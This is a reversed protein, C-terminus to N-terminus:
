TPKYPIIADSLDIGDKMKGLIAEIQKAAKEADARNAFPGSYLRTFTKSKIAVGKQYFPHGTPALKQAIKAATDVSRYSGVLITFREETQDKVVPVPINQAQQQPAYYTPGTYIMVPRPPMLITPYAMSTAVYQVTLPATVMMPTSVMMTPAAVMMAPQPAVMITPQPAVMMTPQAVVIPFTTQLVSTGIQALPEAAVMAPLLINLMGALLLILIAHGPQKM